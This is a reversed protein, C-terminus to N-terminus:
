AAESPGRSVAKKETATRRRPAVDVIEASRELWEDIWRRHIRLDRRGGVRAARLRGAKIERYLLKVGCQAVPCAQLPTLWDTTPTAQIVDQM